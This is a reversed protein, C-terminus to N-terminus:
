RVDGGAPPSSVPGSSIVLSSTGISWDDRQPAAPALAPGGAVRPGGPRSSHRNHESRPKRQGRGFVLGSTARLRFLRRQTVASWGMGVTPLPLAQGKRSLLTRECGGVSVTSVTRGAERRRDREGFGGGLEAALSADLFLHCPESAPDHISSAACTRLRYRHYRSPSPHSGAGRPPTRVRM